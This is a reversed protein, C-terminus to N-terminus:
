ADQNTGIIFILTKERVEQSCRPVEQSLVDEPLLGEAVCIFLPFQLPQSSIFTSLFKRCIVLSLSVSTEDKDMMTTEKKNSIKCISLENKSGM